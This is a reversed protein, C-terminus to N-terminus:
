FNYDETAKWLDLRNLDIRFSVRSIFSQSQYIDSVESSNFFPLYIGFADDFLELALGISFLTKNQFEAESSSKAAYYGVDLFPSFFLPTDIMFNLAFGFNNSLGTKYSSTLANKFGGGQTGIQQSLFGSQLNRGFYFGEYLNDNFGQPTLAISGRALSSAFSSSGRETNQLFYSGFLRFKLHKNKAFQYKYLYASTLKVYSAMEDDFKEYQQFELDTDWKISAIPDQFWYSYKLQEAIRFRKQFFVNEDQFIAEEEFILHANLELYKTIRKNKSQDFYLRTFPKLKEYHLAYSDTSFRNFRQAQLGGIIKRFPKGERVFDYQISGLGVVGPEVGTISVGPALIWKLRKAPFSSNYFSAGVMLHDHANFGLYPTFFVHKKEPNDIGSLFKFDLKRKSNNWPNQDLINLQAPLSIKTDNKNEVAIEREGTFGDIWTTKEEGNSIVKYALPADVETHNVVKINNNEASIIEYDPGSNSNIYRDFFWNLEKGTVKQFSNRLDNVDPNSFQNQNYYDQIAEKFVETGLYNELFRFAMAPREYVSVGYELATYEDSHLDSRKLKSLAILEHVSSQLVSFDSDTNLLNPLMAQYPDIQYFHQHYKHDYFTTLGEDLWPYRRENTSLSGYFWNHAIEHAILHDVVEADTHNGIITIMPYEMGSGGASKSLVVKAEPFPYEGIEDSFYRVARELYIMAQDWAKAQQHKVVKLTIQKDNIVIEKEELSFESSAFWAFDTVNEAKFFADSDTVKQKTGTGFVEFGNPNVITVDYDAFDHYYEGIELYPMAHWLGNDCKVVRPYWHVMQYYEKSRGFRSSLKPVRITYNFNLDIQEGDKLKSPLDIYMVEENEDDYNLSYEIGSSSTVSINTYGGREYEKFFYQDSKGLFLQQTILETNNSRYANAWLHFYIRNLEVGSNNVYDLSQEASIQHNATDLEARIIYQSRQANSYITSM